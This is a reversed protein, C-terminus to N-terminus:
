PEKRASANQQRVEEIIEAMHDFGIDSLIIHISDQNAGKISVRDSRRFDEDDFVIEYGSVLDRFNQETLRIKVQTMIEGTSVLPLSKSLGKGNNM